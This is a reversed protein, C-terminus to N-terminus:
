TILIKNIHFKRLFNKTPYKIISDTKKFVIVSNENLTQKTIIICNKSFTDTFNSYPILDLRNDFKEFIIYEYNNNYLEQVYEYSFNGNINLTINGYKKILDDFFFDYDDLNINM